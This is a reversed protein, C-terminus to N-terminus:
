ALLFKTRLKVWLNSCCNIYFQIQTKAAKRKPVSMIITKNVCLTSNLSHTHSSRRWKGRPKVKLTVFFVKSSWRFFMIYYSNLRYSSIDIQKPKDRSKISLRGGFTNIKLYFHPQRHFEFDHRCWATCCHDPLSLLQKFSVYEMLTVNSLLWFCNKNRKHHRLVESHSTM